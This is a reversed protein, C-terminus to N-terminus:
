KKEHLYNDMTAHMAHGDKNQRGGDDRVALVMIRSTKTTQVDATAHMAHGDKNQRGGGARM